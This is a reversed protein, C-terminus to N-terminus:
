APRRGRLLLWVVNGIWLVAYGLVVALLTPNPDGQAVTVTLWITLGYILMESTRFGAERYISGEREDGVGTSLGAISWGRRSAVTFAALTVLVVGGLALGLALDGGAWGAAVVAALFALQTVIWFTLSREPIM